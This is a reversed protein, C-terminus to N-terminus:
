ATGAVEYSRWFKKTKEPYRDILNKLKQSNFKSIELASADLSYRGMSALYLADALAKEPLAIFVGNLKGFDSYYRPSVKTYTFEVSDIVKNYTRNLCVSEVYNQQIQTTYGYYSLATTLSIYSPVQVINALRMLDSYDIYDWRERLMYVNRKLRILFNGSVYRSCLVRASDPKIKLRDAVENYSFFLPKIKRLALYSM